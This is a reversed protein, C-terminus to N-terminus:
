RASRAPQPAAAATGRSMPVRYPGSVAQGGRLDRAAVWLEAEEASGLEEGKLIQRADPGDARDADFEGATTFFSVVLSEVAPNGLADVYPQASEPALVVRVELEASERLPPGTAGPALSVGGIEVREIVPAVNRPEPPANAHLPVVTIAERVTGATTQLRYKFALEVRAPLEAPVGDPLAGGLAALCQEALQRPDVAVSGDPGAELPIECEPVACAFGSTAGLTFPCFRWAHSAVADGPPLWNVPLLAVPEGPGIELPDAVVALIRADALRSRPDLEDSCAALAAVALIALRWPSERAGTAGAGCGRGSNARRM